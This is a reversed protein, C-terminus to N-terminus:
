ETKEGKVLRCAPAIERPLPHRDPREFWNCIAQLQDVRLARIQEITPLKIPVGHRHLLALADRLSRAVDETM